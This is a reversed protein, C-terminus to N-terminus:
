IVDPPDGDLGDRVSKAWRELNDITERRLVDSPALEAIQERLLERARALRSKVTGHPVELVEAIEALPMREWYHLEVALQLDLPIRRLARLLLTQEQMAAVVQSPSSGLDAASMELPLIPDEKRKKKRLYMLLQRRAVGFVYARFASEKHVRDRTELCALLTRQTLDDAVDAVTSRFFRYVGPVHRRVLATGAKEDGERWRRLLEDDEAM